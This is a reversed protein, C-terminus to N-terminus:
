GLKESLLDAAFEGLGACQTLGRGNTPQVYLTSLSGDLWEITPAGDPQPHRLYKAITAETIAPGGPCGPLLSREILRSLLEAITHRGAETHVEAVQLSSFHTDLMRRLGPVDTLLPNVDFARAAEPLHPVIAARGAGFVEYRAITAPGAASFLVSPRHTPSRHDFVHLHTAEAAPILTHLPTGNLELPAESGRVAQVGVCILVADAHHRAAVGNELTHLTTGEIRTVISRFHPAIDPTEAALRALQTALRRPDVGRAAPDCVAFEIQDALLGAFSKLENRSLLTFGELAGSRWSTDLAERAAAEASETGMGACVLWPRPYSDVRGADNLATLRELTRIGLRAALTDPEFSRGLIQGAAWPCSMPVRSFDGEAPHNAEFWAVRFGREALAVAACSGIPGGGIVAVRPPSTV